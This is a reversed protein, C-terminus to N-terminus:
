VSVLSDVRSDFGVIEQELMALILLTLRVAVDHLGFVLTKYDVAM